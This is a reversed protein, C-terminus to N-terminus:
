LKKERNIGKFLIGACVKASTEDWMLLCAERILDNLNHFIIKDLIKIDKGKTDCFEKWIIPVDKGDIDELGYYNHPLSILESVKPWKLTRGDKSINNEATKKWKSMLDHDFRIKLWNEEFRKNYAYYPRPYFSSWNYLVRFFKRKGDETPDVRQFISIKNGSFCGCTIVDGLEPDIGTTEVDVITGSISIPVMWERRIYSSM